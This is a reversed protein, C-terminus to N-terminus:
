AQVKAVIVSINDLGGAENAAEVLARAAVEPTNASLLEAIREDDIMNSLGDGCL